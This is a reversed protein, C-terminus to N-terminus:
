ISTESAVGNVVPQIKFASAILGLTFIENLVNNLLYGHFSIDFKSKEYRALQLSVAHQARKVLGDLLQNEKFVFLAASNWPITVQFNACFEAKWDCCINHHSCEGPASQVSKNIAETQLNALFLFDARPLCASRSALFTFQFGLVEAVVYLDIRLIQKVVHDFTVCEATHINGIVIGLPQGGNRTPFREFANAECFFGIDVLLM